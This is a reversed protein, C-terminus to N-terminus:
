QYSTRVFVVYSCFIDMTCNIMEEKERKKVVRSQRQPPLYHDGGHGSFAHQRYLIYFLFMITLLRPFLFLCYNVCLEFTIKYEFSRPIKASNFIILVVCTGWSFVVVIYFLAFVWLLLTGAHADATTITQAVPARIHPAKLFPITLVSTNLAQKDIKLTFWAINSVTGANSNASPSSSHRSVSTRQGTLLFSHIAIFPTFVHFTLTFFSKLILFNLLWHMTKLRIVCM